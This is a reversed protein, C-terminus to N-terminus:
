TMIINEVLDIYQSEKNVFIIDIDFDNIAQVNYPVYNLNEMFLINEYFTADKSFFPIKIRMPILDPNSLTTYNKIKNIHYCNQTITDTDDSILNKYCNIAASQTPGVYNDNMISLSIDNEWFFSLDFMNDSNNGIRQLFDTTDIFNLKPYAKLGKNEFTYIWRHHIYGLFENNLKSLERYKSPIGIFGEKAIKPLNKILVEPMSIDEIIHSAICFDFKGNKEVYKKLEEWQSEFNVNLKFYKIHSECSPPNIDVIYDIVSHSWNTYDASGGIDIVNFIQKQKMAKIYNVVHEREFNSLLHSHLIAKEHPYIEKKVFLIDIQITFKHVSDIKIEHNEIIDLVEFGIDNIYKLHELLSPVSENYEGMFPLELLMYSAKQILREGGKLVPIEAGQVDIKIFDFIENPFLDDLTTTKKVLTECDEFIKTKEKFLSDGTNKKQYWNTEKISDSIIEYFVNSWENLESYNIPEILTFEANPYIQKMSKSWNGKFAGIDLVKNCKLNELKKFNM